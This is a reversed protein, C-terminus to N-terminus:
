HNKIIRKRGFIKSFNDLLSGLFRSNTLKQEAKDCSNDQNSHKSQNHKEIRKRKFDQFIENLEQKAKVCNAKKMNNNKKKDTTKIKNQNQKKPIQTM